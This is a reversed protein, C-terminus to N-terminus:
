CAGYYVCFGLFPAIPPNDMDQFEPMSTVIGLTSAMAFIVGSIWLTLRAWFEVLLKWRTRM